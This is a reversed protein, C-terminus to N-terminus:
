FIHYLYLIIYITTYHSVTLTKCGQVCYYVVNKCIWKTGCLNCGESKFKILVQDNKKLMTLFMESHSHATPPIPPILLGASSVLSAGDSFFFWGMVALTKAEGLGAM